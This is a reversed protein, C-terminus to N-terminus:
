ETFTFQMEKNVLDKFDMTNADNRVACPCKMGRMEGANWWVSRQICNEQELGGM